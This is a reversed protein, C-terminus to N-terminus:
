RGQVSALRTVAEPEPVGPSRGVREPNTEDTTPVSYCAFRKDNYPSRACTPCHNVSHEVNNVIDDHGDVANVVPLTTADRPRMLDRASLLLFGASESSLAPKTHGHRPTAVSHAQAQRGRSPGM